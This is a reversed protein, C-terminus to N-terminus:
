MWGKEWEDIEEDSISKDNKTGGEPKRSFIGAITGFILGSIHAVNAISSPYFVGAIDLLLWFGAAMFMPMPVGYTWVMMKPKMAALMGLLGFIAGSAGLAAAYFPLSIINAIIGSAFFVIAFKRAEIFKELISGFVGLAFINGLLHGLDGHLFISTVLIWPRSAADKSVLVFNDTFGPIISQVIFVLVCVACLILAIFRFSM